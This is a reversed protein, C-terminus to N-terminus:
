TKQAEEACLSWECSHTTDGFGLIFFFKNKKDTAVQCSPILSLDTQLNVGDYGILAM